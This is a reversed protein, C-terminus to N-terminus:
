TVSWSLDNLHGEAMFLVHYDGPSGVGEEGDTDSDPIQDADWAAQQAVKGADVPTEGWVHALYTDKGFEDAIYDPRLLLATYKKM